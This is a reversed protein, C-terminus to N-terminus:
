FLPGFSRLGRSSSGVQGAQKLRCGGLGTSCRLVWTKGLELGLVGWNNDCGKGAVITAECPLESSFGGNLKVAMSRATSAEVSSSNWRCVHSSRLTMM